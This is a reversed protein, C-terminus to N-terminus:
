SLWQPHLQHTMFHNVMSSSQIFITGWVHSYLQLRVEVLKSKSSFNPVLHVQCGSTGILYDNLIFIECWNSIKKQNILGESVRWLTKQILNEWYRNEGFGIMKCFSEERIIFGGDTGDIKTLVIEQWLPLKKFIWLAELCKSRNLWWFWFTEHLAERACCTQHNVLRKLEAMLNDKNSVIITLRLFISVKLKHRREM